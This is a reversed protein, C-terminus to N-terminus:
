KIRQYIFFAATIIIALILLFIIIKVIFPISKEKEDGFDFDKDSLDMSRTYFDNDKEPLKDIPDEKREEIEKIQEQNLAEQPKELEEEKTQEEEINKEEKQEDSM